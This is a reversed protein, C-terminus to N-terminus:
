ANLADVFDNANTEIGQQYNFYFQREPSTESMFTTLIQNMGITSVQHNYLRVMLALDIRRQGREEYKIRDDMRPFKSKLQHMGWESLQRVATAEKNQLYEAANEHLCFQASRIFYGAGAVPFASDVVTKVHKEEYLKELKEYIKGMRAVASDHMNGPANLACLPISGDPAFLFINSVFHDSKWGNYFMNQLYSNTPKGITMKCGDLAFAVGDLHPYKRSIAQVYQELKEDSPLTPKYEELAKYLIRKGFNLWREFPTLTLGFTLVLSRTVAGKTRYWMLILGLCGVADISRPRGRRSGNGTTKKEYIIGTTENISYKDFIPKFKHLLSKFEKHDVGCANLLSQDCGSMYLHRFASDWYSKVAHRPFRRDRRRRGEDNLNRQKWSKKRYEEEELLLLLPILPNFRM